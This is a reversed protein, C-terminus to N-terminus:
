GRSSTSCRHTVVVGPGQQDQDRAPHPGVPLVQQAGDTGPEPHVQEVGGFRLPLAGVEVAPRHQRAGDVPRGHGLGRQQELLPLRHGPHQAPVLAADVGRRVDRLREAQGAAVRRRHPPQAVLGLGARRARPGPDRLGPRLGHPGDLLGDRGGRRDAVRHHELGAPEAGAEAHDADLVRALQAPHEGEGAVRLRGVRDDVGAVVRDQDLLADDALLDATTCRPVTV